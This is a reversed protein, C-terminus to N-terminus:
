FYPSFLALRVANAPTVARWEQSTEEFYQQRGGVYGNQINAQSGVSGLNCFVAANPGEEFNYYIFMSQDSTNGALNWTAAIENPGLVRNYFALDDIWGVFKENELLSTASLTYGGLIMTSSDTWRLLKGTGRTTSIRTGNIYLTTVSATGIMNTSYTVTLKNWYSAMDIDHIDTEFHATAFNGGFCLRFDSNIM